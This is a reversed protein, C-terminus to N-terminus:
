RTADASGIVFEIQVGNFWPLIFLDVTYVAADYTTGGGCYSNGPYGLDNNAFRGQVAETAIGSTIIVGSSLGFPGERFSGLSDPSGEFSTQIIDVGDGALLSDRPTNEVVLSSCTSFLLALPALAPGLNKM